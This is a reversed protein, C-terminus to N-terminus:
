EHMEERIGVLIDAHLSTVASSQHMGRSRPRDLNMSYTAKITGPNSRVIILQDSLFVRAVAQKPARMRPLRDRM